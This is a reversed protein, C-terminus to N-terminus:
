SDMAAKYLAAFKQGLLPIICKGALKDLNGVLDVVKKYDTGLQVQIGSITNTAAGKMAAFANMLNTQLRWKKLRLMGM